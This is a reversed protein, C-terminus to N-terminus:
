AFVQGKARNNFQKVYEKESTFYGDFYKKMAISIFPRGAKDLGGWSTTRYDSTDFKAYFKDLTIGYKNNLHDLVENTFKDCFVIAQKIDEM